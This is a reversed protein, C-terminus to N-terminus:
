LSASVERDIVGEKGGERGGKRGVQRADCEPLLAATRDYLLSLLYQQEDKRGRGGGQKSRYSPPSLAAAVRSLRHTTTTNHTYTYTHTHAFSSIPQGSMRLHQGVEKRDDYRNIMTACNVKDFGGVHQATVDLLAQADGEASIIAQNIERPNLSSPPPLFHPSPAGAASAASAAAANVSNLLFSLRHIASFSAAPCPLFFAHTTTSPAVALLLLSCLFPSISSIGSSRRSTNTCVQRIRRKPAARLSM